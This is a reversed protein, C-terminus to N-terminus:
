RIFTADCANDGKTSCFWGKYEKGAKSTRHRWEMAAHVCRPAPGPPGSLDYKTPPGGFGQAPPAPQAPAAQPAAQQSGQQSWSPGDQQVVQAGPFSQAVTAVGAFAAEAAVIAPAVGTIWALQAEVQEGREGRLNILTGAPTKISVQASWNESV